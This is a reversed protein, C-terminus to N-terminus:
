RPSPAASGVGDHPSISEPEASEYASFAGHIAIKGPMAILGADVVGDDVGDHFFPAERAVADHERRVLAALAVRQDERAIEEVLEDRELAVFGRPLDNVGVALPDAGNGEIARM